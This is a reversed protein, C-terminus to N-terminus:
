KSSAQFKKHYRLVEKEKVLIKYQQYFIIRSVIMALISIVVVIYISEVIETVTIQFILNTIIIFLLTILLQISYIIFPFLYTMSTILICIIVLNYNGENFKIFMVSKFASWLLVFVSIVFHIYRHYKKIKQTSKVQNFFIFLTFVFSLVLFVIDAKLHLLFIKHINTKQLILIDYFSYILALTILLLTFYKSRINNTYCVKKRFDKSLKKPLRYAKFLEIM